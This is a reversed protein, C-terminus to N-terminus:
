AESSSIREDVLLGYMYVKRHICTLYMYEHVSGTLHIRPLKQRLGIVMTLWTKAGHNGVGTREAM